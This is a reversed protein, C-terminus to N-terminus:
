GSPLFIQRLRLTEEPSYEMSQLTEGHYLIRTGCGMIWGDLPFDDLLEDFEELVAEM